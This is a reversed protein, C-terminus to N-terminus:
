NLHLKIGCERGGRGGRGQKCNEKALQTTVSNPITLNINRRVNGAQQHRAQFLLLFLSSVLQCMIGINKTCNYRHKKYM